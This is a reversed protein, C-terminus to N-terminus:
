SRPSTGLAPRWAGRRVWAMNSHPSWYGGSERVRLEVGVIQRGEGAHLELRRAREMSARGCILASPESAQQGAYRNSRISRCSRLAAAGTMSTASSCRRCARVGHALEIAHRDCSGGRRMQSLIAFGPLALALDRLAELDSRRWAQVAVVVESGHLVAIIASHREAGSPVAASGGPSTPRNQRPRSGHCSMSRLFSMIMDPPNLMSCKRVQFGHAHLMWLDQAAATTPM